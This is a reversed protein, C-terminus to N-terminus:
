HQLPAAAKTTYGLEASMATTTARLEESISAIVDDTAQRTPLAIAVALPLSEGTAFVPAAVSAVGPVLKDRTFAVGAQRVEARITEIESKGPPASRYESQAYIVPETLTLPLHALYVWGISSALLPMTAGVRVTIPLAYSGYDWRVVVPGYDGWVALNVAHTTRDRLGPLHQSVLGVEDMRRLSEAGLRRLAPGMDYLGSTPSQSIMGVRTLSVLYRHIKSPQMGSAAALESLSMPGLGEELARLVTMAIEVSQIGRRAPAGDVPYDDSRGADNDASVCSSYM